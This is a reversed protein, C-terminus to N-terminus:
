TPIKKERGGTQIEKLIYKSVSKQGLKMGSGQTRKEDRLCDYSIELGSMQQEQAECARQQVMQWKKGATETWPGTRPSTDDCYIM